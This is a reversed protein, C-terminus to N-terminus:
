SLVAQPSGKTAIIIVITRVIAGLMRGLERAFSKDETKGGGITCAIDREILTFREM